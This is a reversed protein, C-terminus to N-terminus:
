DLEMYIIRKLGTGYIYEEGIWNWIYLGRWDLEMYIIRGLGAGYVYM